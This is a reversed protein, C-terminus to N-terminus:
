FRKLLRDIYDREDAPRKREGARRRLEQLIERAQQREMHTPIKVDGDDVTGGVAGGPQRGFPDNGPGPQRGRQGRAIGVAGRMRQAMQEAMGNLGKRMEELAQTQRGLAEGLDGKKLSRVADKMARYAKGFPKPIGGLFDDMKMMLRRLDGRLSEQEAASLEDGARKQAGKKSGKGGPQPRGQMAGEGRQRRQFTKDLQQRQRQTLSRLGDMLRKAKALEENPKGQQVGSRINDLMRKLEALMQRAAEVSGTRALDRATELMNRLDTSDISQMSPDSPLQSLGQKELYEALAAMYKDLADRLEDMLKDIEASNGEKSLAQMLRDQAAKLDREAISFEGDEIRLATEWLLAQVAGVGEPTEDYILRSQAVSLALFVVTDDFFHKPNGALGNLVAVVEAVVAPEPDNLQKRAEVLARAVPHNFIREPLVTKIADSTGAQGRADIAQLEILVPTGAWPHASFDQVSAGELRGSGLKPLALEARIASGGGPVAHGQPHRIVVQVGALGYDDRAEYELRLQGRGVRAPARTFEVEPAKDTIVALPWRALIHDDLRIELIDAERDADEFITEVRYSGTGDGQQKGNHALDAFQIIKNGMVLEPARGIGTVQALLTSGVPAKVSEPARAPVPVQPNDGKSVATVQVTAGAQHDLFMPALRTYAPPTIWVDLELAGNVALAMKPVLARELRGIADGGGAVMAIGLFLLVLARIGYPDRRALGPKPWHVRLKAAADAMRKLHTSWLTRTIRDAQSPGLGSALRDHLAVLPRHDLDSDRELRTQAAQEDVPVFGLFFGRVLFGLACAFIVLVLSHVWFPLLPLWDFLAVTIFLAGVGVAPWLAPWLREWALAAKAM